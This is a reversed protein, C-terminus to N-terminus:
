QDKSFTAGFWSEDTFNCKDVNLGVANKHVSYGSGRLFTVFNNMVEIWSDAGFEVTNTVGDANTHTFYWTNFKFDEDTINDLM